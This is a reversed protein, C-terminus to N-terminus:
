SQFIASKIIDSSITTLLIIKVRGEIQIVSIYHEM